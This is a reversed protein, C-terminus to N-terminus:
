GPNSRHSCPRDASRSVHNIYTDSFAFLCLPIIPTCVEILCKGKVNKFLNYTKFPLSLFTLLLLIVNLNSLM